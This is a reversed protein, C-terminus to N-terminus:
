AGTAWAEAPQEIVERFAELFRAVDAADAVRADASVTVSMTPEDFLEGTTEDIKIKDVGRGVAMIAGQPPNLIASFQDVPFMGLNSVSFSGGTFEHPKLGGKRARGALERVEDGIEALTKTDARRVIPTILGGDTAVAVAVDVDPDTVAAGRADDWKANVKPSARLARAAAYLVCDNVSARVDNAKLAARLLTVSALSVEATVFEHPTKTKSELLRSAIVRRISTVPLDEWNGSDDEPTPPKSPKATPSTSPKANTKSPKEAAAASPSPVPAACLGMAALVDGKVLMGRPGTPTITSPDIGSEALLRRVSPWMRGGTEVSSASSSSAKGPAPAPTSGAAAAAPPVYGAFASVHEKDEVMVAVIAGVPVNQAGDGVVIKALFGDEQSEFEMTAKDTEIEAVSDGARIEDGEKVKWRAINGQTMTPSLAPMPLEQAVPEPRSPPINTLKPTTGRTRRARQLDDRESPGHPSPLHVHTAPDDLADRRAPPPVRRPAIGSARGGAAGVHRNARPPTCTGRGRMVTSINKRPAARLAHSNQFDISRRARLTKRPAM